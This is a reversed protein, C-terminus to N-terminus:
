GRAEAKLARAAEARRRRAEMPDIALARLLEVRDGDGLVEDDNVRRGFVAMGALPFGALLGSREAAERATSGAVMELVICEVREPWTAVVEIRM